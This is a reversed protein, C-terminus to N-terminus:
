SLMLSHEVVAGELCHELLEVEDMVEEAGIGQKRTAEHLAALQTTRLEAVEEVVAIEM